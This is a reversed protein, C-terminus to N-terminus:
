PNHIHGSIVQNYNHIGKKYNLENVTNGFTPQTGVM